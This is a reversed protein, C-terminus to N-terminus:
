ALRPSCDLELRWGHTDWMDAQQFTPVQSLNFASELNTAMLRQYDETTFEQTCGYGPRRSLCRLLVVACCGLVRHVLLAVALMIVTTKKRINIGANNVQM